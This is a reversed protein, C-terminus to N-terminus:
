GDTLYEVCMSTDSIAYIVMYKLYGDFLGASVQTTSLPTYSGTVVARDNTLDKFIIKTPSYSISLVNHGNQIPSTFLTTTALKVYINTQDRTVTLNGFTFILTNALTAGPLTPYVNLGLTIMMNSLTSPANAASLDFTMSTVSSSVSNNILAPQNLSSKTIVPNFVTFLLRNLQGNRPLVDDTSNKHFVNVTKTGATSESTFSFSIRIVGTSYVFTEGIVTSSSCKFTGDTLNVVMSNSLDGGSCIVLSGSISAPLIFMSATYVTSATQTAQLNIGFNGYVYTETVAYFNFPYDLSTHSVQNLLTNIRTTTQTAWNTPLINTIPSFLPIGPQNTISDVSINVSESSPDVFVGGDNMRFLNINSYAAPFIDELPLPNSSDYSFFPPISPPTGPVISGIVDRVFNSTLQDLTLQHPNNFNNVHSNILDDLIRVWEQSPFNLNNENLLFSKLQSISWGTQSLDPGNTPLNAQDFGTLSGQSPKYYNTNPNDEM